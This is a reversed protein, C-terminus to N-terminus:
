VIFKYDPLVDKKDEDEKEEEVGAVEEEERIKGFRFKFSMVQRTAKAEM